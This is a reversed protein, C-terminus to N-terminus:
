YNGCMSESLTGFIKRLDTDMVFAYVLARFPVVNWTRAPADTTIRGRWFEPVITEQGLTLLQLQQSGIKRLVACESIWFISHM